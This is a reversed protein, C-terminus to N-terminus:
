FTHMFHPSHQWTGALDTKLVMRNRIGVQTLPIYLVCHPNFRANHGGLIDTKGTGFIMVGVYDGPSTVMKNDYMRLAADIAQDLFIRGTEPNVEHMSDGGDICWLVMDKYSPEEWEAEPEDDDRDLPDMQPDLGAGHISWFSQTAM